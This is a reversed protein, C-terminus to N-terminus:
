CCSLAERAVMAEVGEADWPHREYFSSVLMDQGSADRIIVDLDGDGTSSDFPGDVNVKL